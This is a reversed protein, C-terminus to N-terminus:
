LSRPSYTKSELLQQISSIYSCKYEIFNAVKRKNKTNKCVEHFVKLINNMDCINNYLNSKRKM